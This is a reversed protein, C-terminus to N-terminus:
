CLDELPLPPQENITKFYEEIIELIKGEKILECCKELDPSLYRDSEVFDVRERVLSHIKELIPTSKNPRNLDIAQCAAMLECALVYEVNEVVKLAKRASFAGMSVHDEKNASTPITDSSSPHVLVKNESTLSASTCHVIMFGSNLGGEKILFAPLGENANQDILRALRRESVNALENIAIALYDLAKAPYEGHFNGGSIIRERYTKCNEEESLGEDYFVMPNDTSSNIEIKIINEVFRITDLTVGHIQPICRLTYADQVRKREKEIIGFDSRQESNPYTLLHRMKWAVAQQGPHPRAIHIRPDFAHKLGFLSELTLASIADAQKALRKARVLAEVGFAGIFQTGNILCLGEKEKLVIPELGHEKLVLDSNQFEKKTPNWMKGEGFLGLALHSLPALDGSAGVSGKEPILPICNKNLAKVMSEIIELRIGSHGRLLVNIRLILVMRAIHIPIPQGVGSAHSRILNLQLKELHIRSISVQSFLGFGTNIAYFSDSSDAVYQVLGRARKVKKKADESIEFQVSTDHAVQFLTEPSLSEGDLIFTNLAKKSNLHIEVDSNTNMQSHSM